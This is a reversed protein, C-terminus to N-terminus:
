FLTFPTTNYRTIQKAALNGISRINSSNSARNCGPFLNSLYNECKQRSRYVKKTAMMM